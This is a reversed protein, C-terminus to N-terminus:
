DDDEGGAGVATASTASSVLGPGAPEEDGEVRTEESDRPHLPETEAATGPGSDPATASEDTPDGASAVAAGAASADKGQVFPPTVVNPPKFFPEGDEETDLQM